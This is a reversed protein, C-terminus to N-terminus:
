SACPGAHHAPLRCPRGGEAPAACVVRSRTGTPDSVSTETTVVAGLDRASRILEVVAYALAHAIVVDPATVPLHVVYSRPRTAFERGRFRGAPGANEAPRTV